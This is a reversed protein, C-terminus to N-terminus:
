PFIPQCQTLKNTDMSSISSRGDYQFAVSPYIAFVKHRHHINSIAKDVESVNTVQPDEIKKLAKIIPEYMTHRVVYANLFVSKKLRRLRPSTSKTKEHAACMLYLMDWDEPIELLAQRLLRGTGAKSSSIGDDNVIGFGNDDELILVRSYKRVLKKANWIANQDGKKMANRLQKLANDFSENVYQIVKYHSMYCGAEGQHLRNLAQQGEPTNIDFEERNSHFKRWISADLEKRGNIAPFVEYDFVGVRNLEETVRYLRETDEPLNIVVISGFLENLKWDTDLEEDTMTGLHKKVIVSFPIEYSAPHDLNVMREHVISVSTDICDPPLYDFM